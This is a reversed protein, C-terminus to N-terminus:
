QNHAELWKAIGSMRNEWYSKTMNTLNETEQLIKNVTNTQGMKNLEELAGHLAQKMSEDAQQSGVDVPEPVNGDTDSTDVIDLLMGYLYRRIYTISNGVSQIANMTNAFKIPASFDITEDSDLSYLTAHASDASIDHCVFLLGHEKLCDTALPVIDDLKFYSYNIKPSSVVGNKQLGKERFDLRVALLKEYINM